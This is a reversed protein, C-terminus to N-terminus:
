GDDAEHRQADVSLVGTSVITWLTACIEDISRPGDARYWTVMWNVAGLGILRLAHTDVDERIVGEIQLADLMADWHREYRDRERMIEVRADGTLARWEFLLVYIMDDGSLLLEMHARIAAKIRGVPTSERSAASVTRRITRDIAVRMMDVLIDEKSQYRYHLSGPLLDCADAIQRVSTKDFGHERFLRASIELVRARESEISGSPHETARPERESRTPIKGVRPTREIAAPQSEREVIM